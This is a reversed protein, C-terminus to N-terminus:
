NRRVCLFLQPRCQPLAPSLVCQFEQALSMAAAAGQAMNKWSLSFLIFFNKANVAVANTRAPHPWLSRLRIPLLGPVSVPVDLVDPELPDYPVELLPDDECLVVFLPEIWLAEVLLGAAPAAGLPVLPLPLAVPLPEPAPPLM